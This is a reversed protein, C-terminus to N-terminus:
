RWFEVRGGRRPLGRIGVVTRVSDHAPSGGHEPEPKDPLQRQRSAPEAGRDTM